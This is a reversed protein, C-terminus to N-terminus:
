DGLSLGAQSEKRPSPTSKEPSEPELGRTGVRPLSAEGDAELPWTGLTTNLNQPSSPSAKWLGWTEMADDRYRDGGRPSRHVKCATALQSRKQSLSTM